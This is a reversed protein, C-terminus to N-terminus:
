LRGLVDRRGTRVVSDRSATEDIFLLQKGHRGDMHAEIARSFDPFNHAQVPTPKLRGTIILDQLEEFMRNRDEQNRPDRMWLGHAYGVVKLNKFVLAGTSFQHPQRSMGGYTVCTGGHALSASITLASRGRFFISHEFGLTKAWGVGNCALKIENEAVLRRGEEGKAFEEETLVYDAGIAKLEQKLAEINPRDRVM